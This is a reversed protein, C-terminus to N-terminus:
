TSISYMAVLKEGALVSKASLSNVIKPAKKNLPEFMKQFTKEEVMSVPIRKDIMWLAIDTKFLEKADRIGLHRQKEQLQFISTIDQCGNTNSEPSSGKTTEDYHKIHHTKMHQILGSTNGGKACITGCDYNKAEFCLICAVCGKKDPHTGHHFVKFHCWMASQVRQGLAEPRCLSWKIEENATEGEVEADVV